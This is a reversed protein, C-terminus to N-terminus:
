SISALVDRALRERGKIGGMMTQTVMVQMGLETIAPALHADQQDILMVDLVDIYMRAIGLASVEHGLAALMAAAPGKVADGGVIPSVGVRRAPTRVLADRLGPVGLIPGISVFPNSPGLVIVDSASLAAIV